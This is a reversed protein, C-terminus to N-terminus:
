ATRKIRSHIRRKKRKWESRHAAMEIERQKDREEYEKDLLHLKYFLFAFMLLVLVIAVIGLRFFLLDPDNLGLM